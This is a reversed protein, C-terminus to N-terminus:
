EGDNDFLRVVKNRGVRVLTGLPKRKKTQKKKKKVVRKKLPAARQVISTTDSVAPTVFADQEPAAKGSLAKNIAKVGSMVAQTKVDNIGKAIDPNQLASQGAKFAMKAGKSALPKLFKFLSGFISGLGRGRQLFQGRHVIMNLMLQLINSHIRSM